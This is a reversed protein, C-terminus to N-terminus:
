RFRAKAAGFSIVEAAVVSTSISGVSGVVQWNAPVTDFYAQVVENSTTLDTSGGLPNMAFRLTVWPTVSDSSLTPGSLDIDVVGPQPLSSTVTWGSTFATTAASVFDVVAPDFSLRFAVHDVIHVVWTCKQFERGLDVPVDVEEGAATEVQAVDLHYVTPVPPCETTPNIVACGDPYVGGGSQAVDFPILSDDCALYGPTAPVFSSPSSPGLCVLADPLSSVFYGYTIKALRVLGSGSYCGGLGVIWDTPPSGVNIAGPYLVESAFVIFNPDFTLGFEFGAIDGALEYGIVWLENDTTFAPVSGRSITADTDLYVGLEGPAVQAPAPSGVLSAVLVALLSMTTAQFRM